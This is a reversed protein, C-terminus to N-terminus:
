YDRKRPCGTPTLAHIRVTQVLRASFIVMDLITHNGAEMGGFSAGFCLEGLIDLTLLNSWHGMDKAESWGKQDVEHKSDQGLYDCWVRIKELMFEEAAQLANESFAHALLRKRQAHQRKDSYTHLNAPQNIYESAETWGTKVLNANRDGYIDHLAKVSNLSLCNPAYRVM